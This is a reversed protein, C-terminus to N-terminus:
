FDFKRLVCAGLGHAFCYKPRRGFSFESFDFFVYLARKEESSWHQCGGLPLKHRNVFVWFIGANVATRMPARCFESGMMKIRKEQDTWRESKFMPKSVLYYAPESELLAWDEELWWTNEIVFHPKVSKNTGIIAHMKKISFGLDYVLLWKKVKLYEILTDQSYRIPVAGDIAPILGIKHEAKIQKIAKNWVNVASFAPFVIKKGFQMFIDMESSSVMSM